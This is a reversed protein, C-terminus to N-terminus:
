LGWTDYLAQRMVQAYLTAGAVNPHFSQQSLGIANWTETPHDPLVDFPVEGPTLLPIVRNISEHAGGVGYGGWFAPIPNAFVIQATPMAARAQDVALQMSTAMVDCMEQIWDRDDSGMLVDSELTDEFLRPYGMLVYGISGEGTFM